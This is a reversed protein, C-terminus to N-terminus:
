SCTTPDIGNVLATANAIAFLGCEDKSVNLSQFEGIQSTQKSGSSGRGRIIVVIIVLCFLTIM